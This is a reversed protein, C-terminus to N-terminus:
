GNGDFFWDMPAYATQGLMNLLVYLDGEAVGIVWCDGDMRFEDKLKLSTYVPHDMYADLRVKQPFACQVSDMASGFTLYEKMMWGVLHGDIGIEVQCWDGKEKLVHVPTGNYFKGLSPANRDPKTRLHLRDAPDPNNVKAWGTRDLVSLLEEESQPLADLDTELLNTGKLTGILVGDISGFNYDMCLGCFYRSYNFLEHITNEVWELVWAGDALRIFSASYYQTEGNVNRTWEILVSGDGAHGLDLHAGKPLENTTQIDYGSAAATVLHLKRVGQEDETLMLLTHEQLCSQIVTGEVPIRASDFADETLFVDSYGSVGLLQEFSETDLHRLLEASLPIPLCDTVHPQDHDATFTARKVYLMGNEVRSYCASVETNANHPSYRHLTYGPFYDKVSAETLGALAQAQLPTHPLEDFDRVLSNSYEGLDYSVEPATSGQPYYSATLGRMIVEGKYASPNKWGCILFAKGDYHYSIRKGTAHCVLDFGLADPYFSGDARPETTNHRIFGASWFSDIPSVQTDIKWQGDQLLYGNLSGYRDLWFGMERGDPLQFAIYDALEEEGAYNMQSRLDIVAQPPTDCYSGACSLSPIAALLLISVLLWPIKKMM